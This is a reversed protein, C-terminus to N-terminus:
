RRSAAHPRSRPGRRLAQPVPAAWRAGFHGGGDTPRSHQAVTEPPNGIDLAPVAFREARNQLRHHRCTVLRTSMVHTVGIGKHARHKRPERRQDDLLHHIATLRDPDRGSGPHERVRGQGARHAPHQRPLHVPVVATRPPHLLIGQLCLRDSVPRPGPAREPWPPLLPEILAWLNDYVTWPRTSVRERVASDDCRYSAM